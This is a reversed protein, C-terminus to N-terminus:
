TFYHEESICKNKNLFLLISYLPNLNQLPREGDIKKIELILSM